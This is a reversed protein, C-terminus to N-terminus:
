TPNSNGSPGTEWVIRRTGTGGLVGGGIGVALSLAVTVFVLWAATGATELARDTTARSQASAQEPSGSLILAQDVITAARTRDIGMSNYVLQIADDRRGAQIDRQLRQLLSPDANAGLQERLTAGLQVSNDIGISSRMMGPGMNNFIGSLLSGTISTALTAFLLTIVAWAVAGHLVGDVQRRLGSLRAAVYGGIFASILMSLGAWLLPGTTGPREGQMLDMTSLGMAVGLLALV